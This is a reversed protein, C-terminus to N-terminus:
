VHLLDVLCYLGAVGRKLPPCEVFSPTMEPLHIVGLCHVQQREDLFPGALQLLSRYKKLARGFHIRLIRFNCVVACGQSAICVLMIQSFCLIAPRQAKLRFERLRFGAKASQEDVGLAPGVCQIEVLCEQPTVGVIDARAISEPRCQEAVALCLCGLGQEIRQEVFAIIVGLNVEHARPCSQFETLDLLTDFIEPDCM